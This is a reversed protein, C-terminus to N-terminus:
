HLVDCQWASCAGAGARWPKPPRAIVSPQALEQTHTNLKDKASIRPLIGVVALIALVILFIVLAAIGHGGKIPKQEPATETQEHGHAPAQGAPSSNPAPEASM